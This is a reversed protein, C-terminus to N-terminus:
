IIEHLLSGLAHVTFIATCPEPLSLMYSHPHQNMRAESIEINHPTCSRCLPQVFPRFMTFVPRLLSPLGGRSRSRAQPLKVSATKPVPPTPEVHNWHGRYLPDTLSQFIEHVFLEELHVKFQDVNHLCPSSLNIAFPLIYAKLRSTARGVIGHMTSRFIEGIKGAMADSSRTLYAPVQRKSLECLSKVYTELM